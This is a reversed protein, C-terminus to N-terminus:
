VKKVAIKVKEGNIDWEKADPADTFAISNALVDTSISDKYKEVVDCVAQSGSISM